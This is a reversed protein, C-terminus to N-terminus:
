KDLIPINPKEKRLKSYELQTRTWNIAKGHNNHIEKATALDMEGAMIKELVEDLHDVRENVKKREM